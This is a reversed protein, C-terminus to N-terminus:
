KGTFLFLCPRIEVHGEHDLMTISPISQPLHPPHNQPLPAGLNPRICLTLIPWVGPPPLYYTNLISLNCYAGNFFIYKFYLMNHLIPINFHEFRLPLPGLNPWDWGGEGIIKLYGRHIRTQTYQLVIWTRFWVFIYSCQLHPLVVQCIKDSQSVLCPYSELDRSMQLKGNKITRYQGRSSLPHLESNIVKLCNHSPRVMGGPPPEWQSRQVIPIIALNIVWLNSVFWRHSCCAVVFILPSFPAPTPYIDTQKLTSVM